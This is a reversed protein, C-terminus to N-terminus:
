NLCFPQEVQTAQAHKFWHTRLIKAQCIAPHTTVRQHECKNCRQDDM